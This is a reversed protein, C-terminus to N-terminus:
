RIGSQQPLWTSEQNDMSVKFTPHRYIAKIVNIVKPPVNMRELAEFLKDHKVKDFAKEWDLLVMVTKTQTMDGKEVIRRVYHTAQTTGRNQRFGYQTPQLFKDLKDSIRKQLIATLLKYITNLLSIPRYNAVDGKDGNKFLLIAQAQTVEDEVEEARWWNNLMDLVLQLQPRAM